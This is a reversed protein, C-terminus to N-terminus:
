QDHEPARLQQDARRCEGHRSYSGATGNATFTSSTALGTSGTVATTVNTGNAFTGSAGSAPATFTVTAGPFYQNNGDLVVVTLPTGFAHGIQAAQNSGTGISLVAPVSPNGNTLSVVSPTADSATIQVSYSGPTGNATFTQATAIGTGAASNVTFKNTGNTFTGSAGSAPATFTVAIGGVHNDPQGLNAWRGVCVSMNEPFATNVQATESQNSCASLFYTPGNSIPAAQVSPSGQQATLLALLLLM